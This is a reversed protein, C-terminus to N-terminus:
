VDLVTIESRSFLRMPPGWLGTGPSTYIYSKKLKYLGFCYRFFLPVLFVFPPIQGFHTHGSLQLKIGMSLNKVVDIPKHRLLIHTTNKEKCQDVCNRIFLRTKEDSKANDALGILQIFRKDSKVMLRDNDLCTFGIQNLVSLFDKYPSIFDHNGSVAVKVPCNIKKLLDIHSSIHKSSIDLFDGTFVVINPSISNITDVIHKTWALSQFGNYHLDSLQVIRAPFDKADLDFFRLRPMKSANKYAIFSLGISIFIPSLVCYIPSIDLFLLPWCFSIVTSLISFFGLYCAFFYKIKFSGKKQARIFSLIFGIILAFFSTAIAINQTTSLHLIRTFYSSNYFCAAFMISLFFMLLLSLMWKNPTKKHNMHM